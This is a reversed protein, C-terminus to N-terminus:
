RTAMPEADTTRSYELLRTRDPTLREGTSDFGMSVYLQQAATMV